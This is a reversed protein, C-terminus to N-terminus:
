DFYVNSLATLSPPGSVTTKLQEYNNLTECDGGKQGKLSDSLIFSVLASIYLHYLPFRNWISYVDVIEYLSSSLDLESLLFLVKEKYVFM